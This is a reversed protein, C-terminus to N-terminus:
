PGDAGCPWILTALERDFPQRGPFIQNGGDVVYLVSLPVIRLEKRVQPGARLPQREGLRLALADMQGYLFLGISPAYNREAHMFRPCAGVKQHMVRSM